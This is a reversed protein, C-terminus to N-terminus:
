AGPKSGRPLWLEVEHQARDDHLPVALGTHEVGDVRLRPTGQGAEQRVHIRYVTDRYRYRVRYGPWDPPICPSLRLSGGELRLGLLSEIVLRYMWGASGTYWTWGGRGVHPEVAYVDAAVVYPEVKYTAIREASDGHHIPNIMGFLEWARAHDGLEAFAMTAWVAAHTYQGGNERVGPVYGRIYGPDQSTKDFPPDLLQVLGADRRVLRQDLSEMAQTARGTDAAGSLVSWSQSISDINCEDSETSGLPAGNDFWARRYWAGDWAHNELNDRLQTARELCREAFLLDGRDRALVQFRGLVDYLFFGLWVSEGRGGEGVRNMGDNWDGTGILPLGREGFLDLARQLSRVCHQYLTERTGSRSPLDYYSEEDPNVRRGEVYTMRENLVDRDGTAEVYRCTALPLWLYDDSCRTRVGRDLPPHWWHQVDGDIFQHEACLLLHDRALKPEAHLMAMTDQLQDRFGFAGGSQYYGSRAVYRCALTQYLLWGNVL